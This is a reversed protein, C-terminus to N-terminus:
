ARGGGAPSARPLRYKELKLDLQNALRAADRSLLKFGAMAMARDDHQEAGAAMSAAAEGLEALQCVMEDLAPMDAAIDPAPIM